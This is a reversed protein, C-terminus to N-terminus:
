IEVLLRLTCKTGWGLTLVCWLAFVTWGKLFLIFSFRNAEKTVRVIIPRRTTM